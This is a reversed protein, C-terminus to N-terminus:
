GKQSKVTQSKPFRMVQDETVVLDMPVDWPDSPVSPLQQINFFLGCRLGRWDDRAMLRDYFGAGRGLRGGADDWALGPLLAVEVEAVDISTCDLSPERIGFRGESVLQEPGSVPHLTMERTGPLCRPYVVLLGRERAEAAIEDTPVESPTSAYILLTGAGAVEPITWLNLTLQLAKRARDESHLDTLRSRIAKRLAEKETM